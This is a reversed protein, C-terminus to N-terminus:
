HAHPPVTLTALQHGAANSVSISMVSNIRPSTPMLAYAVSWGPHGPLTVITAQYPKGDMTVVGTAAEGTGIYLGAVMQDASQLSISNPLQNGNDTYNPGSQGGHGSLTASNSTLILSYGNGIDVTGPAVVRVKPSTSIASSSSTTVPSSTPSHSASPAATTSSTPTAASSSVAGAAVVNGSGHGHASRAGSGSGGVLASPVVAVAGAAVLAVGSAAATRARHRHRGAVIVQAATFGAAQDDAGHLVDRMHKEFGDTTEM